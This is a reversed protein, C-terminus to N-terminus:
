EKLFDILYAVDITKGDAEAKLSQSSFKTKLKYSFRKKVISLVTADLSLFSNDKQAKAYSVLRLLEISLEKVQEISNASVEKGELIKSLASQADGVKKGYYFDLEKM